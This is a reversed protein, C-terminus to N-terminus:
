LLFTQKHFVQDNLEPEYLSIMLAEITTRKFYNNSFAIPKFHSQKHETRICNSETETANPYKALKTKLSKEFHKCASIHEYISTKRCPQFHEAIRTQLLRKTEGIYEKSCKKACTFRYICGNRLILPTSQKIKPLAM